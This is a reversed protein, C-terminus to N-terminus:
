KHRDRLPSPKSGRKPCTEQTFNKQAKKEGTLCINPFKLGVVDGFIM